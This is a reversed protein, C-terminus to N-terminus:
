ADEDAERCEKEAVHRYALLAERARYICMAVKDLSDLAECLVPGTKVLDHSPHLEWLRNLEIVLVDRYSVLQETLEMRCLSLLDLGNRKEAM